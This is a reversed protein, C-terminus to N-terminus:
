INPKCLRKVTSISVNLEDAIEQNTYGQQKYALAKEALTEPIYPAEQQQTPNSLARELKELWVDRKGRFPIPTEETDQPPCFLFVFEALKDNHRNAKAWEFTLQALTNEM